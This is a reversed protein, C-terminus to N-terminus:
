ATLEKREKSALHVTGEIKMLAEMAAPSALLRLLTDNGVNVLLASEINVFHCIIVAIAFM